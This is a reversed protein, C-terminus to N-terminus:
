AASRSHTVKWRVILWQLEVTVERYLRLVTVSAISLLGIKTSAIDLQCYFSIM